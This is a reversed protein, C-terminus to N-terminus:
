FTWIFSKKKAHSNIRAVDYNDIDNDKDIDACKLMYEDTIISVGKSHSNARAADVTTIKGDGNLDGLLNIQANVVVVSAGVTVAYERDVHNKKSIVVQYDGAQVSSFTCTAENGTVKKSDVVTSGQMLKIEVELDTYVDSMWSKVNVTVSSGLAPLTQKGTTTLQQGEYTFTATYTMEGPESATPEKTKESTIGETVELSHTHTADRECTLTVTVKSYDTAWVANTVKWIHGGLAPVDEVVRTQTTFGEKTFTATYTTKGKTTCTPQLTIASTTNVTETEVHTADNKCVRTGTVSSNDAAWEYTAEGYDHGTADINEVEKTQTTFGEKTFTATYTTKGKTTCTPQLTIASTTNVTETEVHTTDNKCIRKATVSSYDDAWEYTPDNWDHATEKFYVKVIVDYAPMAFSTGTVAQAPDTSDKEQLEIKEFEYYTNAPTADITIEMLKPATTVEIGSPDKAIASGKDAPVVEIELTHDKEIYIYGGFASWDPNGAPRFYVTVNGAHAEDVEYDNDTGGPYWTAIEGNEARVAKIKDGVALTTRLVYEGDGTSTFVYDENINWAPSIKDGVLYYAESAWVAYFTVEGGNESTLNKVSAGNKYVVEGNATTAWGSFSYGTRTFANATLAQSVDYTFSQDDMNGTGGNANFKVTYTNATYSATVTVNDTVTEPANTWAAFTYGEKAPAAPKTVDAWATGYDVTVDSIKTGDEKNFTVTYTNITYSATVAVDATVTEPANIWAAFTYGEKAPADPKQVDAWATGYDVTVDGIKTGDEKNFTVTYTNITYSATVTVDATVTEPADTWEKFTYGEKVPAAPKEVDAWATGYNVTVDSIKTGDEKNFTVTYTNITYSATVTVDATVTEPADTWEKFTYGEKAPAAPKTVDAWATGYNVTVDSIKTGDEKNFTVTYTNITYSATVTVDATVTEPADTWEKFTYGEKVPAAPKEVDAWATGYNVTVDGIKTGDEKNFTVTYTNITYSATVTVDATVTEPAGTWEKFTYGEKVPAAPKEVDAWATGYNVTVDSIKTGDETNFTVTYTNITYSATVTVDATVTEPADTWAAFTYGEKAPAEPKKVDAWATGDAVTVTDLLTGDEKNFTVTHEQPTGDDEVFLFIEPTTTNSLSQGSGVHKDTFYTGSSYDLYYRYKDNTDTYGDQEATDNFFWLLNKGEAKYHWSKQKNSSSSLTSSTTMSLGETNASYLYNDGNKLWFSNNQPSNSNTEATFLAKTVASNRITIKGDASVTANIAKLQKSNTATGNKESTLLLVSGSNGSAILYKQGAILADTQVYTTTPASNVTVACTATIGDGASATITTEGAGVATVVGNSVTAVSADGTTWVVSTTANAPELIATLTGTDGETLTLSSNDLSIATADIQETVKKFLFVTSATTSVSFTGSTYNIYYDSSGGNHKLNQNEYTWYRDSQKIPNFVVLQHKYSLYYQELYDGNNTLNFGNDNVEATWVIDTDSTEIYNGSEVIVTTKGNTSSIAVGSSSGGPNKLARSSSSGVTADNVILYEGGAVLSDVLVYRATTSPTSGGDGVTVHIIAKRESSSNNNSITIDVTGDALGKVTFQGTGGQAINVSSPSIQAIGDKSTTATFDYASRTSSNTVNIIFTEDVDIQVTKEPINTADPTVDVTEGTPTPDDGGDGVTVHIIAKRESSSNNNSITIDVTGDDLGKVTFQGTGGQAINVSSPSIQAIGDKSTTATFDYGSRTSSNTVNIIFTEDVDIQITKEPINTADPTVDVTEGTPTPDDGGGSVTLHITGKRNSYSGNNQITIDVTGATLGTVTFQGTGSAAITVSAPDIDAVGEKSLTATFTYSNSTSGNTVNIILTEGVNITESVNPSNSSAPTIDVTKPEAEAATVTIEISSTRAAKTNSPIAATITTKGESKATVLGKNSVTAVAEDSSSWTIGSSSANEPELTFSLQLTKGASVSEEVVPQGDDGTTTTGNITVGTAPIPDALDVSVSKISNSESVDNGKADYYTFAMTDESDNFAVVLGKGKVYASGTGNESDSMCGAAGYYFQITQNGNDTPLSTGPGYIQDYYSDSNTHNHGWLFVITQENNSVASNLVSILNAAGTTTRSSNKHLPFHTIIFIVKDNGAKNLYSTLSSVQDSYSQSSSHSGLCYIRYDNGVAVEKDIEFQGKTETSSYGGSTYTNYKFDGGYSIEHNGTTYVGTVGKTTLMNMDAQTLDWYGSAGAGAMDGGFAMVDIEGKNKKVNDIWDGLRNAAANGSQNHTDSTFALVEGTKEVTTGETTAQVGDAHIHDGSDAAFAAQPVLSLIMCLSLVLAFLRKKM